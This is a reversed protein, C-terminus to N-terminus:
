LIDNRAVDSGSSATAGHVVPRNGNNTVGPIQISSNERCLAHWAFLILWYSETGRTYLTMLSLNSNDVLQFIDLIDTYHM